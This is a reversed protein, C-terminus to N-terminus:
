VKSFTIQLIEVCYIMLPNMIFLIFHLFHFFRDISYLYFKLNFNMANKKESKGFWTEWFGYYYYNWCIEM